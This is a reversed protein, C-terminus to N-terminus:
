VNVLHMFVCVYQYRIRVASLLSHHSFMRCWIFYWWFNQCYFCLSCCVLAVELRVHRFQSWFYFRSFCVRVFRSVPHNLTIDLTNNYHALSHHQYYQILEVVSSFKLPEVFGFMGNEYFIKILKNSGGKRDVVFRVGFRWGSFRLHCILMNHGVAHNGKIAHWCIFSWFHYQVVTIILIFHCFIAVIWRVNCYWLLLHM